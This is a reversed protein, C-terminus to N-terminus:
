TTELGLQKLKEMFPAANQPTVVEVGTDISNGNVKMGQKDLEPKLENMAETYGKRNILFLLKTALRGFEYPKQVVTADVLGAQLNRLTEPDGDFCVIKVKNRIGAQQVAKVIAPGNYSWIGLFGNIQDGYKTIADNVNRIAAGTKDAKDQFPEQLMEINHGKVADLFGQYRDRANQASMNGVFAVFKGGQPLLRVAAEGAQKGAEYNNTGIYALRQSSECDSDFTIVPIGKAIAGDIVPAFASAEIPSVAIGDVNAAVADEFVTKQDNNTPQAGPPAVRKAECGVEQKGADMGKEMATWFNSTNNTIIELSITGDAKRPKEFAATAPTGQTPTSATPTGATPASSTTASPAAAGPTATTPTTASQDKCAALGLCVAILLLMAATRVFGSSTQM